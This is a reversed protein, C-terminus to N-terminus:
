HEEAKWVGAEKYARVAGSHIFAEPGAPVFYTPSYFRGIAHYDVYKDSYEM